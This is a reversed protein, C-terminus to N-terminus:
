RKKCIWKYTNDAALCDRLELDLYNVVRCNSESVGSHIVIRNDKEYGERDYPIWRTDSGTPNKISLCLSGDIKEVSVYEVFKPDGEVYLSSNDNEGNIVEIVCQNGVKIEIEDLPEFVFGRENVFKKSMEAEKAREGFLVGIPVEFLEAIVPFLTVDPYGIGCEWKSISQPAINLKEALITQTWGRKKRLDFIINCFKNLQYMNEGREKVINYWTFRSKAIVAFNYNNDIICKTPM